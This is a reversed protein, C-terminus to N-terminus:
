FFQDLIESIFETVSASIKDIFDSLLDKITNKTVNTDSYIGIKKNRSKEEEKILRDTYKYNDYLYSVKAYGNKILQQQLLKDDYFVWGLTRGYKDNKKSNEDFEIEIKKANLLKSCTYDKAKLAYLKNFEDKSSLEPTDIALFRVKVEKENIIFDVTDGDICNKLKASTRESAYVNIPFFLIFLFIIIKKM